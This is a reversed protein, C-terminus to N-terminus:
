AICLAHWRSDDQKHHCSFVKYMNLVSANKESYKQDAMMSANWFGLSM